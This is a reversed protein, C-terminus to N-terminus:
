PLLRCGAANQADGDQLMNKGTVPGAFLVEKQLFPHMASKEANVAPINRATNKTIALNAFLEEVQGSFLRSTRDAIFVNKL